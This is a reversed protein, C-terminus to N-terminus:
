KKAALYGANAAAKYGAGGCGAAAVATGGNSGGGNGGSAAGIPHPAARPKSFGAFNRYFRANPM